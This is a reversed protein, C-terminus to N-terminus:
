SGASARRVAHADTFSRMAEATLRGLLANEGLFFYAECLQGPDGSARAVKLLQQPGMPRAFFDLAAFPWEINNKALNACATQWRGCPSPDDHGIRRESLRRTGHVQWAAAAFRGAVFNVYGRNISALAMVGLTLAADDDAIAKDYRGQGRFASARFFYSAAYGSYRGGGFRPVRHL